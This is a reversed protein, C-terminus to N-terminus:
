FFLIFDGNVTNVFPALLIWPTLSGTTVRLIIPTNSNALIPIPECPYVDVFNSILMLDNFYLFTM